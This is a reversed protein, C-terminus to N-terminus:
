FNRTFDLGPRTQRAGLGVSRCKRAEGKVQNENRGLDIVVKLREAVLSATCVSESMKGDGNPRRGASM